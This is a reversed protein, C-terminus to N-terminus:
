DIETIRDNQTVGNWSFHQLSKLFSMDLLTHEHMNLEVTQLSPLHQLVLVRNHQLRCHLSKLCPLHDISLKECTVHVLKLTELRPLFTFSFFPTDALYLSTVNPFSQFSAPINGRWELVRVSPLLGITWPTPASWQRSLLLSCTQLAPLQSCELEHTGISMAQLSVLHTLSVMGCRYANLQLLSPSHEVVLIPVDSVDVRKLKSHHVIAVDEVCPFMQFSELQPLVNTFNTLDMLHNWIGAQQFSVLHPFHWSSLQDLCSFEVVHSHHHKLALHQLQQSYRLEVLTTAETTDLYLDTLRPANIQITDSMISAELHLVQLQHFTFVSCLDPCHTVVLTEIQPIHKLFSPLPVFQSHQFRVHKLLTTNPFEWEQVQSHYVELHQLRIDIQVKEMRCGKDLVVRQLNPFTCHSLRLQQHQVQSFRLEVLCAFIYQQTLFEFEIAFHIQFVQVRDYLPIGLLSLQFLDQKNFCQVFGHNPLTLIKQLLSCM